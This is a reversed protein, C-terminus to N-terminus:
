ARKRVQEAQDAPVVRQMGDYKVSAIEKTTSAVRGNYKLQVRAVEDAGKYISLDHAAHTPGKQASLNVRAAAANANFKMAHLEEAILGARNPLPLNQFQERLEAVRQVGDNLAQLRDQTSVGQEIIAARTASKRSKSQQKRSQHKRSKSM